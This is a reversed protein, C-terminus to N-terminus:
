GAYPFGTSVIRPSGFPALGTGVVFLSLGKVLFSREMWLRMSPTESSSTWRARASFVVLTTSPVGSVNVIDTSCCARM